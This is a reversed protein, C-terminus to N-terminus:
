RRVVACAHSSTRGALLLTLLHARTRPHLLSHTCASRLKEDMEEEVFTRLWGLMKNLKGLKSDNVKKKLESAAMDGCTEVILTELEKGNKEYCRVPETVATEFLHSFRGKVTNLHQKKKLEDYIPKMNETILDRQSYKMKAITSAPVVARNEWNHILNMLGSEERNIESQRGHSLSGRAKLTAADEKPAPPAVPAAPPPSGFPLRGQHGLQM